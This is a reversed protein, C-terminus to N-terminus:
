PDRELEARLARVATFLDDAGAPREAADRLPAFAPSHLMRELVTVSMAPQSKRIARAQDLLEHLWAIAEAAESGGVQAAASVAASLYVGSGAETLAPTEAFAIRLQQLAAAGANRAALHVALHARQQPPLEVSEGRLAPEVEDLMGLHRLVGGDGPMNEFLAEFARRAGESDGNDFMGGAAAQRQRLDRALEFCRSFARAAGARLGLKGYTIGLYQHVTPMDPAMEAVRELVDIAQRLDGQNSLAGGLQLLVDAPEVGKQARMARRNVSRARHWDGMGNLLGAIQLLRWVEEVEHQLALELADHALERDGQHWAIAAMLRHATGDTPALEVQERLRAMAEDIRGVTALAAALNTRADPYHQALALIREYVPISEAPETGRALAEALLNLADLERPKKAIVRELLPRAGALDGLLLRARGGYLAFGVHDPWRSLLREAESSAVDLRGAEIWLRLQTAHLTPDDPDLELAREILQKAVDLHRASSHVRAALGLLEATIPSEALADEVLQVAREDEDLMTLTVAVPVGRAPTDLGRQLLQDVVDLCEQRRNQRALLNALNVLATMDTADMQLARRLESEAEELRDENLLAYGIMAQSSVLKPDLELSRRLAAIGEDRRGDHILTVGLNEWTLAFGPDLELARRLLAEAETRAGSNSLMGGAQTLVDARDPALSVAHRLLERATEADTAQRSDVEFFTRSLSCWTMARDPQLALAASLHRRATVPDGNDLAIRGFNAHLWYDDPHQDLASVFMARAQEVHQPAAGLALGVVAALGPEVSGGSAKVVAALADRDDAFMATCLAAHREDVLAAFAALQRWDDSTQEEKRIWAWFTLNAAFAPAFGSSRLRELAADAIGASGFRAAFAASYARDTAAGDQVNTTAWEGGFTPMPDWAARIQELQALFARDEIDRRQAEAGDRVSRRLEDVTGPEAGLAEARDVAASASLWEGAVRLRGVEAVAEGVAALRERERAANERGIFVMTSVGITLVLVAAAAFRRTNQRSRRSAEAEAEAAVRALEAKHANGEVETLWAAVTEALESARAPRDRPIPSLCRRCLAVIEPPGDCGDLARWADDLQATAAKTLITATSGQYPPQGTLIECLIAGLSFIDSREDLDDVRGMAQEPPMYAPTGMVSGVLSADTGSKSRATVIMESNRDARKRLREDAIGGQGLVKAFGWDVVQVEGFGGIMVNGPKLDRHIVSRSHVYSMTHCMERFVTLLARRQDAPGQREALRRALTEGKVLKMAFFPRDDAQLGLEYIPVVGPHQLQGGIQAEEIFRQLLERNKLHKEHLVKIAVDRGLDNDHGQLVVGVAGRAIEGLLRYRETSPDDSRQKAPEEAHWESTLLQVRPAPLGSQQLQHLISEHNV